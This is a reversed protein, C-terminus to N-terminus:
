SSISNNTEWINVKTILNDTFVWSINLSLKSFFFLISYNSAFLFAACNTSETITVRRSAFLSLFILVFIALMMPYSLSCPSPFLLPSKPLPPPFSNFLLRSPLFCTCLHYSTPPHQMKFTIHRSCSGYSVISDYLIRYSIRCIASWSWYLMWSELIFFHIIFNSIINIVILFLYFYVAM